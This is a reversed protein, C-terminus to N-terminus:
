PKLPNLGHNISGCLLLLTASSYLPAFSIVKHLEFASCLPLELSSPTLSGFDAEMLYGSVGVTHEGGYLLHGEPGTM